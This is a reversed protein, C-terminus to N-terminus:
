GVYLETAPCCLWCSVTLLCAWSLLCGARPLRRSTAHYIQYHYTHHSPSTQSVARHRCRVIVVHFILVIVIARARVCYSRCSYFAAHLAPACVVSWPAFGYGQKSGSRKGLALWYCSATGRLIGGVSVMGIRCVDSFSRCSWHGVIDDPLRNDAVVTRAVAPAVTGDDTAAAM